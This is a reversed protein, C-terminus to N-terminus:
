SLSSVDDDPQSFLGADDMRECHELAALLVAGAKVLGDEYESRSSRVMGRQVEGLCYSAVIAIWDNPSHRVDWERGPLDFQRAREQVIRGVIEDRRTLSNDGSRYSWVCVHHLYCGIWCFANDM